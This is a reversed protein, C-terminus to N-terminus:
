NSFIDILEEINDAPVDPFIEEIQSIIINNSSYSIINQLININCTRIYLNIFNKNKELMEIIENQNNRIINYINKKRYKKLYLTIYEIMDTKLIIIFSILDPHKQLLTLYKSTTDDINIKENNNNQTTTNQTTTNQTTTNQTTTNQTTTNSPISNINILIKPIIIINTTYQITIDIDLIKFDKLFSVTNFDINHNNLFPEYDKISTNNIYNTTLYYKKSFDYFKIEKNM